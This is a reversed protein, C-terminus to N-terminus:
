DVFDDLHSTASQGETDSRDDRSSQETVPPPPVPFSDVSKGFTGSGRIAGEPHGNEKRSM